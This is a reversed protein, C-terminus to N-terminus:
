KPPLVGWRRWLPARRQLLDKVVGSVIELAEAQNAVPKGDRQVSRSSQNLQRLVDKAVPGATKAGGDLLAGVTLVELMDLDIASGTSPIVLRSITGGLGASEAIARNLRMTSARGADLVAQPLRPHAHGATMMLSVAQLLEVLPRSAFPELSRAHQISVPGVELMAQLPRYLEPRGTLVGIPTQVSFSDGPQSGTWELTLDNLMAHHEAMALPPNGRRYLDRRFSRGVGFDRLTERLIPDRTEAMMPAMGAPVSVSEINETLTASGIFTCKVDDMARAVDAFMAPQWTENLFEHAVYRPDHQRLEKLRAEVGPNSQFFLAGADKMRELQTFVALITQDPPETSGRALMRMLSHLPRMGSWGTEVNYSLYALGGARLRQGFISLLHQRNEASIWTLLGHSAIFDFPALADAPLAAIEAFSAEQFHINTLGAREALHRASEIHAPNFDCAWVEAHPCTAAVTLATFGNGCGLDAYRFPKHLDPPRHGLLLSAAAMWIPTTERYFNNTYVMETIYGDNWRAM